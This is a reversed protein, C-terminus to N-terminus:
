AVEVEQELEEEEESDEEVEDDSDANKVPDFTKKKAKKRKCLDNGM